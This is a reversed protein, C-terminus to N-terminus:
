SNIATEESPKDFNEEAEIFVIEEDEKIEVEAESKTRNKEIHELANKSLSITLFRLISEDLKYFRELKTIINPPASFRFIAYYGIKSKKVMYALRKRGWDEVDQIEGGSNVIIEKIHSIISQIQEDELAANILVASEYVKNSM